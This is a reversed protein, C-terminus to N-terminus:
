GESGNFLTRLMRREATEVAEITLTSRHGCLIEHGHRESGILRATRGAEILPRAITICVRLGQPCTSACIRRTGARVIPRFITFSTCQHYRLVIPSIQSVREGLSASTIKLSIGEALWNCWHIRSSAAPDRALRWPDSSETR